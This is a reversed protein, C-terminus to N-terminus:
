APAPHALDLQEGHGRRPVPQLASGFGLGLRVPRVHRAGGGLARFQSNVVVIDRFGVDVFRYRGADTFVPLGGAPVNSLGSLRNPNPRGDSFTVPGFPNYYYQAPVSINTAGIGNRPENTSRTEARYFGFEGYLEM